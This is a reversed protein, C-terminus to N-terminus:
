AAAPQVPTTATVATAIAVANPSKVRNRSGTSPRVNKPKRHRNCPDGQQDAGNVHATRGRPKQKWQHCQPGVQVAAKRKTERHDRGDGAIRTARAAVPAV